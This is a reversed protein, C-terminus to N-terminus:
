NRKEMPAMQSILHCYSLNLKISPVQHTIIIADSCQTLNDTTNTVLLYKYQKIEVGLSKLHLLSCDGYVSYHRKKM